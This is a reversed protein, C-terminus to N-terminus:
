EPQVNACPGFSRTRAASAFAALAALAKFFVVDFGADDDKM